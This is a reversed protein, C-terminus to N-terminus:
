PKTQGNSLILSFFRTESVLSTLVSGSVLSQPIFSYIFAVEIEYAKFYLSIYSRIKIHPFFLDSSNLINCFRNCSFLPDEKPQLTGGLSGLGWLRM